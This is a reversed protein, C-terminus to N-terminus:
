EEEDSYKSVYPKFVYPKFLSKKIIIKKDGRIITFSGDDNYYQDKTVVFVCGPRMEGVRM